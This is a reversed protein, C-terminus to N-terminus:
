VPSPLAARGTGGDAEAAALALEAAEGSAAGGELAVAALALEGQQGPGQELGGLQGEGSPQGGDVQDRLGLVADRGRCQPALQADVAVSGPPDLVLEHLGLPLAIQTVPQCARHLDVVGIQATLVRASLAPPTGTGSRVGSRGSPAAASAASPPPSPAAM